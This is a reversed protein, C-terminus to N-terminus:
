SFFTINTFYFSLFFFLFFWYFCFFFLFPHFFSRGTERSEDPLRGSEVNSRAVKEKRANTSSMRNAVKATDLKVSRPCNMPTPNEMSKHSQPAPIATDVPLVSRWPQQPLRSVTTPLPCSPLPCLTETVDLNPCGSKSPLM